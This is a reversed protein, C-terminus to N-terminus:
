QNKLLPSSKQVYQFSMFDFGSFIEIFSYLKCEFLYSVAKFVSENGVYDKINTTPREIIFNLKENDIGPNRSECQLHSSKNNNM